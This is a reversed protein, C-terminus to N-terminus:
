KLLLCCNIFLPCLFVAPGTRDSSKSSATRRRSRAMSRAGATQRPTIGPTKRTNEWHSKRANKGANETHREHSPPRRAHDRFAGLGAPGAAFVVVPGSITLPDARPLAAIAFTV